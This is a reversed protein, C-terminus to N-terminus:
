SCLMYCLFFLQLISVSLTLVYNNSFLGYKAIEQNKCGFEEAAHRLFNHGYVNRLCVADFEKSPFVSSDTDFYGKEYLYKSFEIMGPSLEKYVVRQNRKIQRTSSTETKDSFLKSLKTKTPENKHNTIVPVSLCITRVPKHYNVLNNLQSSRLAKTLVM